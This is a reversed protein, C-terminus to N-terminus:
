QRAVEVHSSYFINRIGTANCIEYVNPLEDLRLGIWILTLFSCSLFDSFKKLKMKAKKVKKNTFFM